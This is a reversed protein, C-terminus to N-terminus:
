SMELLFILDRQKLDVHHRCHRNSHRSWQDVMGMVVTAALGDARDLRRGRGSRRRGAGVVIVLQVPDGRQIGLINFDIAEQTRSGKGGDKRKMQFAFDKLLEVLRVFWLWKFRRSRITSVAFCGGLLFAALLSTAEQGQQLTGNTTTVAAAAVVVVGFQLLVMRQAGFRFRAHFNRAGFQLFMVVIVVMGRVLCGHPGFGGHCLLLFEFVFECGREIRILVFPQCELSQRVLGFMTGLLHHHGLSFEVLLSSRQRAQRSQRTISMRVNNAKVAQGTVKQRGQVVIVVVATKALTGFRGKDDQFAQRFTQILSQLSPLSFFLFGVLHGHNLPLLEKGFLLLALRTFLVLVAGGRSGVVLAEEELSAANLLDGQAQRAGQGKQVIFGVHHISIQLWAIDSKGGVSRDSEKVKGRGAFEGRAFLLQGAKHSRGAVHRGFIGQAQLISVRGVHIRKTQHQPLEQGQLFGISFRHSGLLNQIHLFRAKGM